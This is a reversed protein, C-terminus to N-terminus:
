QAVVPAGCEPCFKKGASVLQGCSPCPLGEPMSAEQLPAAPAGCEPCFKTGASVSAGCSACSIVAIGTDATSTQAPPAAKIRQIEHSLEEIAQNEAKIAACLEMAEADLVEGSEYKKWYHEGLESKRAAINKRCEGIKSNLKSIEMMDNTKDAANKALNGLKDLFAM